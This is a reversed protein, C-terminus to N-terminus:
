ISKINKQRQRDPYKQRLRCYSVVKTGGQLICLAGLALNLLSFFTVLARLEYKLISFVTRGRTRSAIKALLNKKQNIEKAPLQNAQCAQSPPPNWVCRTDPSGNQTPNKNKKQSDADPPNSNLRTLQNLKSPPPIQISNLQNTFSSLSFPQLTQKNKTIIAKYM